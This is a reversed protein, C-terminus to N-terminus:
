YYAEEGERGGRVLLGGSRSPPMRSRVLKGAPGPPARGGSTNKSCKLCLSADKQNSLSSYNGTNITWEFFTETIYKYNVTGASFFFIQLRSSVSILLTILRMPTLQLSAIPLWAKNTASTLIIQLKVTLKSIKNQEATRSQEASEIYGLKIPQQHFCQM